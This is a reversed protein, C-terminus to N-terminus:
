PSLLESHAEQIWVLRDLIADFFHNMPAQEGENDVFAWDKVRGQIGCEEILCNIWLCPYL